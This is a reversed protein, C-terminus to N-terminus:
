IEVEENNYLAKALEPNNECLKVFYYYGIPLRGGITVKCRNNSYCKCYECNKSHCEKVLEQM